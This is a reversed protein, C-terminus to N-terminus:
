AQAPAATASAKVNYWNKLASIDHLVYSKAPRTVTVKIDGDALVSVNTVKAGRVSAANTAAVRAEPLNASNFYDLAAASAADNAAGAADTRAWLPSGVEFVLAALVAVIVLFKIFARM